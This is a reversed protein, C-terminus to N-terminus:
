VRHLNQPTSFMSFSSNRPFSPSIMVFDFANVGANSVRIVSQDQFTTQQQAPLTQTCPNFRAFGVSDLRAGLTNTASPAGRLLVGGTRQIDGNYVQDPPTARSYNINALLYFSGVEAGPQPNSGQLVTGAPITALLTLLGTASCSWVTYGSIDLPTTQVNQLEVFEDQIGALGQTSVQSIAAITPPPLAVSPDSAAHAPSAALGSLGGIAISLAGVVVLRRVRHFV